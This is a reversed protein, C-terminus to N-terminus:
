SPCLSKTFDSVATEEMGDTKRILIVKMQIRMQIKREHLFTLSKSKVLPVQYCNKFTGYLWILDAQCHYWNTFTKSKKIKIRFIQFLNLNLAAEYSFVELGGVEEASSQIPV